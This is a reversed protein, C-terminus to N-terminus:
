PGGSPLVLASFHCALISGRGDELIVTVAQQSWVGFLRM